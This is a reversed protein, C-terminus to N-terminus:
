VDVLPTSSDCNTTDCDTIYCNEGSNEGTNCNKSNSCGKHQNYREMFKEPGLGLYCILRFFDAVQQNPVPNPDELYKGLINTMNNLMHFGPELDINLDKAVRVLQLAVDSITLNEYNFTFPNLPDDYKNALEFFYDYSEAVIEPSFACNLSELKENFMNLTGNDCSDNEVNVKNEPCEPVVPLSDHPCKFYDDGYLRKCKEYSNPYRYIRPARRKRSSRDLTKRIPGIKRGFRTKLVSGRGLKNNYNKNRSMWDSTTYESTENNCSLPNSCTNDVIVCKTPCHEENFNSSLPNCPGFYQSPGCSTSCNKVTNFNKQGSFDPNVCNVSGYNCDVPFSTTPNNPMYVLDPMPVPHTEYLGCNRRNVKFDPNVLCDWRSSQYPCGACPSSSGKNFWGSVFDVARTFFSDVASGLNTWYYYNYCHQEARELLGFVSGAADRVLEENDKFTVALQEITGRVAYYHMMQSILRYCYFFVPVVMLSVFMLFYYIASSEIEVLM